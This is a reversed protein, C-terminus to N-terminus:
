VTLKHYSFKGSRLVTSIKTSGFEVKPHDALEIIKAKTSDLDEKTMSKHDAVLKKILEVISLNLSVDKFDRDTLKPPTGSKVLQWFKEAEIVIRAQLELDPEVEVLAHSQDKDSYSFYHCLDAGTVLLQQQVQIKYHEPVKGSKALDHSEKSPVKIELILKNDARLGDLSARLFDYKPHTATAPPMDELSILEYRARAKAELDSGRQTAFNGEFGEALGSKEKWVKLPTSYPCVGMIAAAESAGIGGKRWALWEPTGQIM